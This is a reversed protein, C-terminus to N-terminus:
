VVSGDAMRDSSQCVDVRRAAPVPQVAFQVEPLAVAEQVRGIKEVVLVIRLASGVAIVAKARRSAPGDPQRLKVVSTVLRKTSAPSCRQLSEPLKVAVTGVGVAALSKRGKFILALM